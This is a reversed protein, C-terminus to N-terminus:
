FFIFHLFIDFDFKFSCRHNTDFFMNSSQFCVSCISSLLVANGSEGSAPSIRAQFMVEVLSFGSVLM